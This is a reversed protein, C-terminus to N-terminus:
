REQATALTISGKALTLYFGGLVISGQTSIQSPCGDCSFGLGAEVTLRQAESAILTHWTPGTKEHYRHRPRQAHCWQQTNLVLDYANGGGGHRGEGDMIRHTRTGCVDLRLQAGTMDKM